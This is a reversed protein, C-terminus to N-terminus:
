GLAQRPAGGGAGVPLGSGGEAGAVAGTTPGDNSTLCDPSNTFTLLTWPVSLALSRTFPPSPSPGRLSLPSTVQTSPVVCCKSPLAVGPLLDMISPLRPPRCTVASRRRSGGSGPEGFGCAGPEM